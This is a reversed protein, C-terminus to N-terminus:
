PERFQIGEFREDKPKGHEDDKRRGDRLEDHVM